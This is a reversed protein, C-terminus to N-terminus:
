GDVCFSASRNVIGVNDNWFGASIKLYEDRKNNKHPGIIEKVDGM